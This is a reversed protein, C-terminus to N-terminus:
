HIILRFCFKMLWIATKVSWRMYGAFIKGIIIYKGEGKERKGTMIFKNIQWYPRYSVQRLKIGSYILLVGLLAALLFTFIGGSLAVFSCFLYMAGGIFLWIIGEKNEDNFAVTGYYKANELATQVNDDQYLSAAKNCTDLSKQYDEQSAIIFADSNPAKTYCSYSYGILDYACDKRFGMDNPHKDIYDDILQFALDDKGTSMYLYCQESTAIASDSDIEMMRNIYRQARDYDRKGDNSIRAGTRMLPINDPHVQLGDEVTKLSNDPDNLAFYSKALLIYIRYDRVNDNLADMCKRIVGRYNGRMFMAEMEEYLDKAMTQAAIDIKGANYAADLIMDYEKRRDETKFTKVAAAITNYAEQLKELIEESNLAGNAMNSRIEGQKQLLQKRIEKIGTNKDLSYMVYYDVLGEPINVSAKKKAM